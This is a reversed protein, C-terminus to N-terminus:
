YFRADHKIDDMFPKLTEYYEKPIMHKWHFCSYPLSGIIDLDFAPVTDNLYCDTRYRFIASILMQHYLENKMRNVAFALLCLCIILVIVLYPLAITPM